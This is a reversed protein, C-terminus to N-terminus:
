MTWTSRLKLSDRGMAKRSAESLVPLGEANSKFEKSQKRTFRCSVTGNSYKLITHCCPSMIIIAIIHAITTFISFPFDFFLFFPRVHAWLKPVLKIKIKIYKWGENTVRRTFEEAQLSIKPM